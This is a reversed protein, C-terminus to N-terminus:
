NMCFNMFKWINLPIFAPAHMKISVNTFVGGIRGGHTPIDRYAYTDQLYLLNISVSPQEGATWTCSRGWVKFFSLLVTRTPVGYISVTPSFCYDRPGLLKTFAQRTFRYGSWRQERHAHEQWSYLDYGRLFIDNEYDTKQAITHHLLSWHWGGYERGWEQYRVWADLMPLEASKPGPPYPLAHKPQANRLRHYLLSVTLGLAAIGSLTLLSTM